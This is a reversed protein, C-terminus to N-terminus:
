VFNYSLMVIVSGQSSMVPVFQALADYFFATQLLHLVIFLANVILLWFNLRGIRGKKLLPQNKLRSILVWVAIQHAAYLTWM